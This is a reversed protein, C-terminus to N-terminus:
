LTKRITPTARERARQADVCSHTGRLGHDARIARDDREHRGPAARSPRQVRQRRPAPDRTRRERHAQRDRGEVGLLGLRAALPARRGSEVHQHGTGEGIAVMEPIVMQSALVTGRLNVDFTEWWDDADVEWLPGIPGVIGANNILLDIPGLARRIVGIAKRLDSANTVDAMAAWGIGGAAYVLTATEALESESRAIVGVAVGARALDVAVM